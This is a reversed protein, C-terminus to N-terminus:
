SALTIAMLVYGFGRAISLAIWYALFGALVLVGGWRRTDFLYAPVGYSCHPLTKVRERCDIQFWLAYVLLLLLGHGLAAIELARTAGLAGGLREAAGVGATVALFGCLLGAKRMEFGARSQTDLASSGRGVLQHSPM